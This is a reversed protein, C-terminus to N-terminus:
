GSARSFNKFDQWAANDNATWNRLTDRDQYRITTEYTKREDGNLKLAAKVTATIIAESKEVEIVVEKVSMYLVTDVDEPIAVGRAFLHPDLGPAERIEYYVDSAIKENTLQQSSADQLDETLADRFDQIEKKTAGAIGGALMAPLQLIPIPFNVAVPGMQTKIVAADAGAAAGGYFGPTSQDYDGAVEEAVPVDGPVLVVKSISSRLAESTPAESVAVPAPTAAAQRAAIESPSPPVGQALAVSGTVSLVGATIVKHIGM